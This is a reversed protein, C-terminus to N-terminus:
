FNKLLQHLEAIKMEKKGIIKQLEKAYTVGESQGIKECLKEINVKGNV